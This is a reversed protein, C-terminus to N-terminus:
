VLPLLFIAEIIVKFSNNNGKSLMFSAKSKYIHVLSNINKPPSIEDFIWDSIKLIACCVTEQPKFDGSKWIFNEVISYEGLNEVLHWQTALFISPNKKQKKSMM